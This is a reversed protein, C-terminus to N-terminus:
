LVGFKLFGGASLDMKKVWHMGDVIGIGRIMCLHVNFLCFMKSKTLMFLSGPNNGARLKFDKIHNKVSIAPGILTCFALARTM